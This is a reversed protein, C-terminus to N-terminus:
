FMFQTRLMLLDEHDIMKQNAATLDIPKFANDFHTYTYNLKVLMNPNLTWKIGATYSQAGGSSNCTSNVSGAKYKCTQNNDYTNTNTGGTIAGQFRSPGTGTHDTGNVDFMDYRLGIEWAGIGKGTDFDFEKNPKVLGNVGRKYADSYREGTLMYM